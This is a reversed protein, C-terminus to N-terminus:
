LILPVQPCYRSSLISYPTKDRIDSLEPSIEEGLDERTARSLECM